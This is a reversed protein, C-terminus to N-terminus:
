IRSIIINSVKYYHQKYEDTAYEPVYDDAARQEFYLPERRAFEAIILELRPLHVAVGDTVYGGLRPLLNKYITMLMHMCGDAIDIHPISPIFDNGVFFSLFVFDDVIREFNYLGNEFTTGNKDVITGQNILMEQNHENRNTTVEKNCSIFWSPHIFTPFKSKKGKRRTGFGASRISKLDSETLTLKVNEPLADVSFNENIKVKGLLEHVPEFYHYLMKRVMAIDLIEFNSSKVVKPQRVSPQKKNGGFRSEPRRYVIKERLLIFKPEHTVLSLMILDADLGYLCHTLQRRAEKPVQNQLSQDQRIMDMVKHEGEGPVDSGSFVIIASTERWFVDTKMKHDLWARFSYCLRGMFATGPTICNSDFAELETPVRGEREIFELILDQRDKSSRFRRARQQNRKARPAVGDVAM